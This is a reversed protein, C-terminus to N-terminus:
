EVETLLYNQSELSFRSDWTAEREERKPGVEFFGEQGDFCTSFTHQTDKHQQFLPYLINQQYNPSLGMISGEEAEKHVTNSIWICGFYSRFNIDSSETFTINDNIINGYIQTMELYNM